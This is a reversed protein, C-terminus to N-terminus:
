VDYKPLLNSWPLGILRTRRISILNRNGGVGTRVRGTTRCKKGKRRRQDGEELGHSRDCRGGQRWGRGGHWQRRIGELAAATMPQRILRSLLLYTRSNTPRHNSELSNGPIIQLHAQHQAIPLLLGHSLLCQYQQQKKVAALKALPSFFWASMCSFSPCCFLPFPWPKM